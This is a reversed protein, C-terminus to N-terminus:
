RVAKLNFPYELPHEKKDPPKPFTLTSLVAVVCSHLKPEKLTTGQREVKAKKVLGEPTIIFSTMLKGQVPNDKDALTEEYCGQIKDLNYEVVQKISDRTFPMKEVDLPPKEAKEPKAAEPTVMGAAAAKNKAKSEAAGTGEGQPDAAALLILLAIANM